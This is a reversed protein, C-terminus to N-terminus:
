ASRAEKSEQKVEMSACVQYPTTGLRRVCLLLLLTHAGNDDDEHRQM